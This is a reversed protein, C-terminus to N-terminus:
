TGSTSRCRSTTAPACCWSDDARRARRVRVPRALAPRGLRRAHSMSLAIMAFIVIETWLFYSAVTTDLVTRCSRWSASCCASASRRSGGCSVLTIAPAGPDAEGAGVAVLRRRRPPERVVFMVLICSPSSSTSTSSRSPEHASTPAARDARVRRRRHRRRHVDAALAHPRHARRRARAAAAVARDRRSPPWSTRRRSARAAARHPHRHGRRVGRRDDVRHDVTRKVSIGYVRATDANSASARVALGFPTRTMFLASRSSRAGARRPARPDRPRPHVVSGIKWRSRRTFPLPFNGGGESTRCCIRCFLLLQAVGLTAILLVLRPATSCAACSSLEIVMGIVARHGRRVRVRALVARRVARPVARLDRRRVRRDRGPRLQARRDLPLRARLGRRVGRLDPRHRRRLVLAQM